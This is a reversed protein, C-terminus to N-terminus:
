LQCRVTVVGSVESAEDTEPKSDSAWVQSRVTWTSGNDTAFLNVKRVPAGSSHSFQVPVVSITPSYGDPCSPKNLKTGPKVTGQFVAVGGLTQGSNLYVNHAGALAHGGLDLDGEMPRSGDLALLSELAPIAAPLPLSTTIAVIDGSLSETGPLQNRVFGALEGRSEPFAYNITFNRREGSGPPMEACETYYRGLFSEVGTGIGFPLSAEEDLAREGFPSDEDTSVLYGEKQLSVIASRCDNDADPWQGFFDLTRAQAASGIQYIEDAVVTATRRHHEAIESKLQPVYVGTLLLSLVLVVVLLEILTFGQQKAKM